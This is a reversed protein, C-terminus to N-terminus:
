AGDVPDGGAPDLFRYPAWPGSFVVRLGQQELEESRRTLRERVQNGDQEAVLLAANLVVPMGEAERPLPVRVVREVIGSLEELLDEAMMQAVKGAEKEVREQRSRELLYRRGPPAEALEEDLAAIEPALDGLQAGLRDHDYSVKVDWEFHGELRGLAELIEAERERAASELSSRESYLTLLRAPLIWSRDVFWTVVREHAEGQRAVWELDRLRREVAAAAFEEAPVRSVAAAFPGLTLVDVARDDVGRLEPPPSASEPPLFGYLYLLHESL